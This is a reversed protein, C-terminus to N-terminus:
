IKQPATAGFLKKSVTLFSLALDNKEESFLDYAKETLRYLMRPRGRKGPQRWTELYGEDDMELCHAKVGMYSMSLKTALDDVPLGGESCRLLELITFRPSRGMEQVLQRKM